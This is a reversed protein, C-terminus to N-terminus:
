IQFVNEKKKNLYELLLYILFIMICLWVFIIFSNIPKTCNFNENCVTMNIKNLDDDDSIFNELIDVPDFNNEIESYSEKDFYLKKSTTTKSESESDNDLDLDSDSNSDLNLKLKNTNLKPLNNSNPGTTKYVQNYFFGGCSGSGIDDCGVNCYKLGDVALTEPINNSVYCENGGRLGVYKYNNKKGLEICEAVNSVNGIMRDMSPNSPDDTYCGIYQSEFKSKFKNMKNKYENSLKDFRKTQGKNLKVKNSKVQKSKVQKSEIDPKIDKIIPSIYNSVDKSLKGYSETATKASKDIFDKASKLPNFSM